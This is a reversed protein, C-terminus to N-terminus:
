LRAGHAALRRDLKKAVVNCQEYGALSSCVHSHQLYQQEKAPRWLGGRGLRRWAGTWSRPWWKTSRMAQGPAALAPTSGFCVARRDPAVGARAGLAALRQHYSTPWWTTSSTAQWSHSFCPLASQMQYAPRWLRAGHAALRRDLKKAVVNYQEYGAM